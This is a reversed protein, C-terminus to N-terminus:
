IQGLRRAYHPVYTWNVNGDCGVIILGADLYSSMGEDM